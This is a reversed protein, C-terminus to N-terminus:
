KGQNQDLSALAKAADDENALDIKNIKLFSELATGKDKLAKVLSKKTLKVRETTQDPRM